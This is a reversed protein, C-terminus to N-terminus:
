ILMDAYETKIINVFPNNLVSIITDLHVPLIAAFINRSCADVEITM